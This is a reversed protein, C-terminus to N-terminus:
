CTCLIVTRVIRWHFKIFFFVGLTPFFEKSFLVTSFFTVRILIKEIVYRVMTELVKASSERAVHVCVRVCELV